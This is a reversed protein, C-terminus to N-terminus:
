VSVLAPPLLRASRPEQAAVSRDAGAVIDRILFLPMVEVRMDEVPVAPRVMVTM